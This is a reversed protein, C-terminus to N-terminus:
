IDNEFDLVGEWDFKLETAEEQEPLAHWATCLLDTLIELQCTADVTYLSIDLSLIKESSRFM